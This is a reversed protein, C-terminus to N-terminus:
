ILAFIKFNSNPPSLTFCASLGPIWLYRCVQYLGTQRRGCGSHLIRDEPIHRRTTRTLVSMESSSDGEFNPSIILSSPIVNVTVQLQLVSHFFFWNKRITILNSTVTLTIQLESIRKVKITSAIREESIDTWVLAVRHWM